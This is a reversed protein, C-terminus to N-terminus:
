GWPREGATVVQSRGREDGGLINGPCLIKNKVMLAKIKCPNKAPPNYRQMEKKFLSKYSVSKLFISYFKFL